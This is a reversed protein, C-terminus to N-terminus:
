QLKCDNCEVLPRLVNGDDDCEPYDYGFEVFCEQNHCINFDRPPNSMEFGCKPCIYRFAKDIVARMRAAGVPNASHVRPKEWPWNGTEEMWCCLTYGTGFHECNPMSVAYDADKWQEMCEACAGLDHDLSATIVWGTELLAKAEDVTKVWTYGIAGHKAPDRIDDLWLHIKKESM